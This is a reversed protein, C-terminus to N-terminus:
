LQPFRERDPELQTGITNLAMSVMRYGGVTIVLDILNQTDYREGLANWTADSITDDRHLEDTARLLTADFRDWGPADSGIAIRRIEEDSLGARRGGRAHQAWEYEAQCLWGIRLILLERVRPSLTSRTRIYASQIARPRYLDPHRALTMYLNLVQRGSTSPDLLQRVEDSWEDRPIPHIRPQRLRVPTGRALGIRRPVDAPLRADLAEDPQVGFSNAMMALQTFEAVTFLADFLQQTDFREALTEWTEDSMFADRYLEDASRLLMAEFESWGSAGSGEAIRRIEDDGLGAGKAVAAHQAWMYASRCLWAVRLILMERERPSLTSHHRIYNAFPMIGNVSEPHRALVKLWNSIGDGASVFPDLAERAEAPWEAEGLPHIRSESVSM